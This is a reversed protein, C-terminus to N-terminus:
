EEAGEIRADKPPRIEMPAHDVETDTIAWRHLFPRYEGLFAQLHAEWEFDQYWWPGGPRDEPVNKYWYYLRM